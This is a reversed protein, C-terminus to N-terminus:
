SKTGLNWIWSIKNFKELDCCWLVTEFMGWFESKEEINLEIYEFGFGWETRTICNFLDREYSTHM